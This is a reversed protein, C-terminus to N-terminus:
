NNVKLSLREYKPVLVGPLVAPVNGDLTRGGTIVPENRQEPALSQYFATLRSVPEVLIGNARGKGGRRADERAQEMLDTDSLATSQAITREIIRPDLLWAEYIIYIRATPLHDARPSGTEAPQNEVLLELPALRYQGPSLDIQLMDHFEEALERAPDTEILAAQGNRIVSVCWQKVKQWDAPRVLIRFDQEERSRLSDFHFNGIQEVLKEPQHIRLGGGIPQAKVQASNEEGASVLSAKRELCLMTEGTDPHPFLVRVLAGASVRLCLETTPGIGFTDLNASM